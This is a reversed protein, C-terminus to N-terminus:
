HIIDGWVNHVLTFHGRGTCFTGRWLWGTAIIVLMAYTSEWLLIVGMVSNGIMERGLIDGRSIENPKPLILSICYNINGIELYSNCM